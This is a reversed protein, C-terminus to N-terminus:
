QAFSLMLSVGVPMNYMADFMVIYQRACNEMFQASAGDNDYGGHFDLVSTVKNGNLTFGDGDNDGDEGYVFEWALRETRFTLTQILKSVRNGADRTM